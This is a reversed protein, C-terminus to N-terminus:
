LNIAPVDRLKEPLGLVRHHCQGFRDRQVRCVREGVAEAAPVLELEPSDILGPRAEELTQFEFRIIRPSVETHTHEQLHLALGMLGSFM